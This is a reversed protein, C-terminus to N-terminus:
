LPQCFPFAGLPQLRWPALLGFFLSKIHRSFNSGFIEGRLSKRWREGMSEPLFNLLCFRAPQPYSRFVLATVAGNSNPPRFARGHYTSVPCRPNYVPTRYRVALINKVVAWAAVVRRTNIRIVQPKSICTLVAKVRGFLRACFGAAMPVVRLHCRFHNSENPLFEGLTSNCLFGERFLETNIRTM